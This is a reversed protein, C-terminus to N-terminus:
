RTLNYDVMQSLASDELEADELDEKARSSVQKLLARTKEFGLVAIFSAADIQDPDHDQLDDAVQFALGLHQGFSSLAQRISPSANALVAAGEVSARILAGTKLAHQYHIREENNEEQTTIDIAQGGVMGSVGAATGLVDILELALRPEDRYERALLTFAETLLGDGALLAMAEGFVKHNTPQGRRLDDDDMLPLDDHILSYTHVMEVALAFPLARTERAGLAQATLLVLRPRFRKGGSLASYRMSEHLEPLGAFRPHALAQFYRKAFDEFATLEAMPSLESM